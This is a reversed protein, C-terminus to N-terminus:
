QGDDEMALRHLRMHIAQQRRGLRKGIERQSLGAIRLRELLADEEPTFRRNPTGM